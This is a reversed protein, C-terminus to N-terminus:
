ICFCQFVSNLRSFILPQGQENCYSGWEDCRGQKHCHTLSTIITPTLTDRTSPHVRQGPSDFGSKRGGVPPYCLNGRLALEAPKSKTDWDKRIVYFKSMRSEGEAKQGQEAEWSIDHM